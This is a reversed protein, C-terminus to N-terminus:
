KINKALISRSKMKASISISIHLSKSPLLYTPTYMPNDKDEILGKTYELTTEAIRKKSIGQQTAELSVWGRKITKGKAPKVPVEVVIASKKSSSEVVDEADSRSDEKVDKNNIKSM